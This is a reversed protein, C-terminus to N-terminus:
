SEHMKYPKLFELMQQSPRPYSYVGKENWDSSNGLKTNELVVELLEDHPYLYWQHGRRFAIYLCKGEYKKEFILRGKLQVKLFTEGDIHQAIFDAGKWDDTLRLTAFGFDALVASIKQFNYNEQQRPQLDKYGIPTLKLRTMM